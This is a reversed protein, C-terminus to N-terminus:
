IRLKENQPDCPSEPIVRTPFRKDLIELELETGINGIGSEVYALALSKGISHGFCGSTVRGVMENGSFVPENGMPDADDVDVELTVFEQPVGSERQLLLAERGTFQGKQIKVFRDLGAELISYEKTLDMGWMRYSKELRLSEMAYMGLHVLDMDAGAEVIADFLELQRDIPHHLEWGLEGVFNVRMALLPVGAVTIAQSTLWPFASSSLDADTIKAMLNRSEPGCIVLTGLDMTKNVLKVSDDDPLNRLLLDHDHREAAGSSVVYFRDEEERTITFESEVGGTPTLAHALTIGGKKKPLRNAVMSDLYTEAGPGSIQHKAFPTLDLLAARERTGCVELGVREFWNTKRTHFSYKNYAKQGKAAFWNPREWGYRQGFSANLEKHRDYVKSTKAPRAALREEFDYHIVFVHEYAEENKAKIFDRTSQTSSYRRPDVGLMDISAHGEIIWEALFKGSGGAATIGFSHGESLYFNKLGPAPGVIPNGDPTYAIPGNICEKMGASEFLPVRQGAAIVHPELREVDPALLEQGFGEPVGDLAWCPAGKEYPGLILGDAEQRMYYSADSERLVALEPNGNKNYEALEPIAGTVIYQHEVPVVPLELGVMRGTQRAYNGTCSIVVECTIDGKSTNVVWEDNPKQTIDTVETETYIEGGNMRAGKALAMTLDVPAVHGDDPHYLAGVLDGVEAFPWLKKVEEPGILRYPVGITSATGSYRRYEDMREQTRALRLNGNRHFGVPQGTEGELQQYLDVSYKHIKGVSYSMNFLPLLGAAHWTSGSTLEIKEVLVSDEWGM